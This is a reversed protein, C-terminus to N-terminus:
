SRWFAAVNGVRDPLSHLEDPLGVVVYGIGEQRGVRNQIGNLRPASMACSRVLVLVRDAIRAARRLSQSEYPGDWAELRLEGGPSALRIANSPPASPRRVLAVSQAGSGGIPYPGSPPPTQLPAHWAPVSEPAGPTAVHEHTPFWDSNMRDALESAIRSEDPSGGVILLSGRARPVFDDLGAVLEDLSQLDNPWSTAGLVPGNGWFAVEAPTELLLGEFERRLVVLLALGVIIMPIAGFVVLKMKNEVPYEPVAGPDLVIFGSPPDRLADELVAETGRLGGVLSENVQVEALLAAAEGEIDSFAEVRNHAKDAMASLGKQRERFAELSSKAERLQGAVVQYTSNVGVLGGGSSSGGGSRLQARLHNVQQQLAQVRPHDPSLTARASALELRLQDYTEREPSSGGSVFSTKSTSALQAELSRVQAEYARIEAAALESDARLDAASKVMSQQETSLDAIGHRERFENYLQRAEEAQHEAAEIRKATRTIEQEFRRSQREKHYTMFVDTVLRAFGAADEATEGSVTIQMTQAHFDIEYEILEALDTLSGPFGSEDRIKRLVSQHMLADASPILAYRSDSGGSVQLVGDYKLVAVTEYPSRMILKVWLLGIILGAVGAGILWRKDRWL